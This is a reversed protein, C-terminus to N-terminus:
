YIICHSLIPLVWDFEQDHSFPSCFMGIVYDHTIKVRIDMQPFGWRARYDQRGRDGDMSFHKQVLEAGHREVKAGWAKFKPGHKDNLDKDLVFVALHCYEHALTYLLRVEDDLVKEALEIWGIMGKGIGIGDLSVVRARGATSKLLKSWKIPNGPDLTKISLALAGGSLTEDLIDLFERAMDVKVVEFDAKYRKPNQEKLSEFSIPISHPRPLRPPITDKKPSHKEVMDNALDEDWYEAMTPEYPCPPLPERIKTPSRLKTPSKGQITKIPSKSRPPSSNKNILKSNEADPSVFSYGDKISM